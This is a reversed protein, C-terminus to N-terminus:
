KILIQDFCITIIIDLALLEPSDSAAELPTRYVVTDESIKRFECSFVTALTKKFLTAPM